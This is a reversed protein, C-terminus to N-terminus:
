SKKGGMYQLEGGAIMGPTILMPGQKHSNGVPFQHADAPLEKKGIRPTVRNSLPAARSECKLDPFPIPTRQGKLKKRLKEIEKQRNKWKM